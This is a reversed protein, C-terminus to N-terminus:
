DEYAYVTSLDMYNSTPSIEVGHVNDHYAVIMNNLVLPYIPINDAVWQQLDAFRSLMEDWTIGESVSDQLSEYEESYFGYTNSSGGTYFFRNFNYLLAGQYAAYDIFLDYGDQNAKFQSWNAAEVVKMEIKLGAANLNSQIVEAMRSKSPTYALTFTKGALGLAALESGAHEPDYSVTNEIQAYGLGSPACFNSSEVGGVGGEFAIAVIDEKSIAESIARRVALDSFVPNSYNFGLYYSNAGTKTEITVDTNRSITNYSSADVDFLIDVEGALLASVRTNADTIEKFVIHKTPYSDTGGWYEDFRTVGYQIGSQTIAKDFYYPGTGIVCADTKDMNEFATHSYIKTELYSPFDLMPRNLHFVITYDDVIEYESVYASAANTKVVNGAGTATYEWTFKVDEATFGSGDHFLVGEQLKVLWDSGNKEESIDEWSVALEGNVEGTDSDVYTLTDFTMNSIFQNQLGTSGYPDATDMASHASYVTEKLVPERNADARGEEEGNACSVFSMLVLIILLFAFRNREM